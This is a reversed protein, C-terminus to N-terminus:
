QCGILNDLISIVRTHDALDDNNVVEDFAFNNFFEIIEPDTEM